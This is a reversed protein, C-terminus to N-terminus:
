WLPALDLDFNSLHLLLLLNRGQVVHIGNQRLPKVRSFAVNGGTVILM